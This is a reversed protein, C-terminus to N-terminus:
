RSRIFVRPILGCYHNGRGTQGAFGTLVALWDKSALKVSKEFAKKVEALATIRWGSYSNVVAIQKNIINHYADFCKSPMM